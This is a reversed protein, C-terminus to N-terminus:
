PSEHVWVLEDTVAHDDEAGAGTDGVQDGPPQRGLGLALVVTGDRYGFRKSWFGRGCGPFRVGAERPRGTETRLGGAPM